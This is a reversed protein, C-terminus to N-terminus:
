GETPEEAVDVVLVSGEIMDTGPSPSQAVVTGPEEDGAEVPREVLEWGNQDAVSAADDVTGGTVDPAPVTAPQQSGDEAEDLQTQLEDREAELEELQSELEEIRGQQEEVQAALEDREAQLEDTDITDEVASTTTEATDTGDEDDDFILFGALLGILGVVIAASIAVGISVGGPPGPPAGRPADTRTEVRRETQAPRMVSTPDEGAPTGGVPEGPRTADNPDQDSM